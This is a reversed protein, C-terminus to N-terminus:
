CLGQKFLSLFLNSEAMFQMGLVVIQGLKTTQTHRHPLGTEANFFYTEAQTKKWSFSVKLCFQKTSICVM